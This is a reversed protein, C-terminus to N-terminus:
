VIKISKTGAVIKRRQLTLKRNPDTDIKVIAKKWDPRKGEHVGLRKNKGKYNVTSVKLVKM